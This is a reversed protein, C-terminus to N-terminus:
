RYACGGEYPAWPSEGYALYLNYAIEDQRKPPLWSYFILGYAGASGVYYNGGSECWAIPYPVAWHSGDPYEFSRYKALWLMEERYDFFQAQERRWARKARSPHPACRLRRQYAARVKGPLNGRQWHDPHWARKSFARIASNRCEPRFRHSKSDAQATPAAVAAGLILLLAAFRAM